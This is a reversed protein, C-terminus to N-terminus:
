KIFTHLLHITFLYFIFIRLRPNFSSDYDIRPLKASSLSLIDFKLYILYFKSKDKPSLLYFYLVLGNAVEESIYKTM